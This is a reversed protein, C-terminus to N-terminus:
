DMRLSFPADDFRVLYGEAHLANVVERPIVSVGSCEILRRFNFRLRAACDEGHENHEFYVHDGNFEIWFNGTSITHM